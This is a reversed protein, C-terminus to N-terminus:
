RPALGSAPGQEPPHLEVMRTPVANGTLSTTCNACRPPSSSRGGAGTPQHAPDLLTVVGCTPCTRAQLLM